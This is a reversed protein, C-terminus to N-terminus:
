GLDEGGAVGEKRFYCQMISCFCWFYFGRFVYLQALDSDLMVKQGRILFIKREIIEIPILQKSQKPAPKDKSM